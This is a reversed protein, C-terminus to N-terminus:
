TLGLLYSKYPLSTNVTLSIIVHRTHQLIEDICIWLDKQLHGQECKCIYNLFRQRSYLSRGPFVCVFLGARFSNRNSTQMLKWLKQPYSLFANSFKNPFTSHSDLYLNESDIYRYINSVQSWVCLNLSEDLHMLHYPCEREDKREANYHEM